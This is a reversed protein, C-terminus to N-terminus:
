LQKYNYFVQPMEAGTDNIYLKIDGDYNSLIETRRKM